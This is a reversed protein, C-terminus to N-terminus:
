VQEPLFPKPSPYYCQKAPVSVLEREPYRLATLKGGFVCGTDINITNNVWTPEGVPTHGYVVMADGSYQAAWDGRIPLGHEDLKGTTDGYLAFAHSRDTIVGHMEAKLGAHAVVLHGEDLVYHSMLSSLFAVLQKSFQTRSSTPLREIQEMTVELGHRVQVNRGRLKRLLKDDNNGIVCLASGTQVMNYVIRLTDLVRPGRDILDGLFVATRGDPHRYVTGSDLDLGPKELMIQYGLKLLLAELEDACGHIDGILDFPGHYHTLDPSKYHHHQKM